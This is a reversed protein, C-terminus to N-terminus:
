TIEFNDIGGETAEETPLPYSGVYEYDDNLTWLVRKAMGKDILVAMTSGDADENLSCSAVSLLAEKVEEDTVANGFLIEPYDADGVLIGSYVGDKVTYGNAICKTTYQNVANFILKANSNSVSLRADTVFGTVAPVLLALLVGLIAIVVILEILTFGNKLKRTKNIVIMGKQRIQM